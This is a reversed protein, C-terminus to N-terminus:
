RLQQPIAGFSEFIESIYKQSVGSFLMTYFLLFGFVIPTIAIIGRAGYDIAPTTSVHDMQAKSISCAQKTMKKFHLTSGVAGSVCVMAAISNLSM